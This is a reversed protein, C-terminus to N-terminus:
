RPPRSRVLARMRTVVDRPRPAIWGFRGPPCPPRSSRPPSAFWTRVDVSDSVVVTWSGDGDTTYRYAFGALVPKDEQTPEPVVFIRAHSRLRLVDAARREARGAVVVAWSAPGGVDPMTSALRHWEAQLRAHRALRADDADVTVVRRRDPACLAHLLTTSAEHAGLELIPGETNRVVTALPPTSVAPTPERGDEAAPEGAVIGLTSLFAPLEPFWRALPPELHLDTADRLVSRFRVHDSKRRSHRLLDHAHLRRHSLTADDLLVTRTGHPDWRRVAAKLLMQDLSWRDPEDRYADYWRRLMSSVEALTRVAFLERWVDGRAANYCIPIQWEHLDSGRGEAIRDFPRYVVLRDAPVAELPSLFYRRSLPVM